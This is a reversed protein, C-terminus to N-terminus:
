EDSFHVLVKRYSNFIKSKSVFGIYKGNEDIVPLNWANTDDFIRMVKEMSDLISLKAPPSIMLKRVKFRMYLEKRFMINRIDDLLVIGQFVGEDNVVPFINRKASSIVKVLDGLHMEPHVVDFDREIVNEVKMLTLVAKDKHHTVLEGKQALRMSYISHKEFLFITLYSFSSVIMLPLFLQYGGTLEAILFIGTLPAHMVATMVGAMGLLAFNEVSVDALGLENFTHAVVFGVLAGVFLSPAFVGGVGGAGNTSASAIIKFFVILCMYGILIWVHDKYAYFFSGETLIEPHGNILQSISTYGEGYLPPFLFILISLVVAGIILKSSPNKMKKYYGEMKNMGRILYLSVLGCTIGLVIAWPIRNLLFPEPQSFQFMPQTGTVFYSLSAATVSSIMLPIVSAATFDLMLVEITFFLGAIPAKFIGAIAAAAGCGMLQMLTKHNMKFYSGLNSGIAAGTLVIPAEAGVSGGMGITLSSGVISTWTNHRKLRGQRRSIAYLIHTVGHGIDDRVVYRVFLSALLIGIAPYLLYLYNASDVSFTSTLVHQIVEILKKLFLAAIATLIGVVFSLILIFNSEKIHKERWRIINLYRESEVM